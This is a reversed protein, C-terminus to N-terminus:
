TAQKLNNWKAEIYFLNEFHMQRTAEDQQQIIFVIIFIFTPRVWASSHCCVKILLFFSECSKKLM